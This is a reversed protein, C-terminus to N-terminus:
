KSGSPYTSTSEQQVTRQPRFFRNNPLHQSYKSSIFSGSNFSSRRPVSRCDQVFTRPVTSCYAYKETMERSGRLVADNEFNEHVEGEGWGICPQIESFIRSVRTWCQKHPSALPQVKTFQFVGWFSLLTGLSKDMITPGFCKPVALFSTGQTQHSPKLFAM